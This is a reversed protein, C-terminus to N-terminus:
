DPREKKKTWLKKGNEHIEPLYIIRAKLYIKGNQYKAVLSSEFQPDEGYYTNEDPIKKLDWISYFPHESPNFRGHRWELAEPWYESLDPKRKLKLQEILNYFDEKSLKSVIWFKQERVSEYYNGSADTYDHYAPWQDCHVDTASKPFSVGPVYEGIINDPTLKKEGADDNNPSLSVSLDVGIMKLGLWIVVVAVILAIIKKMHTKGNSHKCFIIKEM